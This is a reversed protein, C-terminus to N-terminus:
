PTWYATSTAPGDRGEPTGLREEIQDVILTFPAVIRSTEGRPGLGLSRLFLELLMSEQAGFDDDPVVANVAIKGTVGLRGHGIPDFNRTKGYQGIRDLLRNGRRRAFAFQRADPLLEEDHSREFVPGFGVTNGFRDGSRVM